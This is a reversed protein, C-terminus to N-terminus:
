GGTVGARHVDDASRCALEAAFLCGPGMVCQGIGVGCMAACAHELYFPIAEVPFPDAGVALDFVVEGHKLVDVLSMDKVDFFTLGDRQGGGEGIVLAVGIFPVAALFGAAADLYLGGSCFDIRYFIGVVTKLITELNLHAFLGGCCGYGILPIASVLFYGCKLGHAIEM